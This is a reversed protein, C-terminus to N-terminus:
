LLCFSIIGSLTYASHRLAATTHHDTHQGFCGKPDASGLRTGQGGAMLIAAVTGSAIATLGAEYWQQQQAPSADKLVTVATFPRIDAATSASASSATTAAARQAAEKEKQIVQQYSRDILELDIHKADTLLQQRQEETLQDFFQFVHHQNHANFQAYLVPDLTNTM